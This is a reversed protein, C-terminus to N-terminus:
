VDLGAISSVLPAAGNILNIANKARNPKRQKIAFTLEARGKPCREAGASNLWQQQRGTTRVQIGEGLSPHAGDFAFGRGLEDEEAPRRQPGRNILQQTTPVKDGHVSHGLYLYDEVRGQEPSDGVTGDFESEIGPVSLHIAWASCGHPTFLNVLRALNDPNGVQGM